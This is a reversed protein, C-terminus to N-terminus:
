LPLSRAQNLPWVSLPLRAAGDGVEAGEEGKKKAGGGDQIEIM